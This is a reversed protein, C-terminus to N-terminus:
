INAEQGLRTIGVSVSDGGLTIIVLRHHFSWTTWHSVATIMLVALRRRAAILNSIMTHLDQVSPESATVMAPPSAPSTSPPLPHSHWFGLTVLSRAQSEPLSFMVGGRSSSKIKISSTDISVIDVKVQGSLSAVGRLVAVAERPYAEAALSEAERFVEPRVNVELKINM